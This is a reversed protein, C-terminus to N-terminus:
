ACNQSFWKIKIFDTFNNIFYLFFKFVKKKFYRYFQLVITKIKVCLWLSIIFYAWFLHSVVNLSLFDLQSHQSICECISPSILYIYMIVILQESVSHSTQHKEWYHIWLDYVHHSKCFFIIVYSVSFLCLQERGRLFSRTFPLRFWSTFFVASFSQLFKSSIKKM